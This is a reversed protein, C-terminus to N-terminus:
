QGGPCCVNIQQSVGHLWVLCHHSVQALLPAVPSSPLQAHAGLVELSAQMLAQLVEPATVGGKAAALASTLLGYRPM